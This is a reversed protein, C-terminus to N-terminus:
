PKYKRAARKGRETLILFIPKGDPNVQAIYGEQMLLLVHKRTAVHSIGLEDALRNLFCGERECKRIHHLIKRRTSAGKGWVFLITEDLAQPPM